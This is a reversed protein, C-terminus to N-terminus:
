IDGVRFSLSLHSLVDSRDRNEGLNLSTLFVRAAVDPPANGLLRPRRQRHVIWKRDRAYGRESRGGRQFIM